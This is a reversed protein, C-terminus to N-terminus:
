QYQAGSQEEQIFGEGRQIRGDAATQAGMDPADLLCQTDAREKDGM